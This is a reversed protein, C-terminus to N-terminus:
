GHQLHLQAPQLAPGTTCVKVALSSPLSDARAADPFSLGIRSGHAGCILLRSSFGPPGSVPQQLVQCVTVSSASGIHVALLALGSYNAAPHDSPGATWISISSLSVPSTTTISLTLALNSMVRM